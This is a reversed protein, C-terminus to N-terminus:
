CSTIAGREVRADQMARLSEIKAAMVSIQQQAESNDPEAASLAREIDFCERYAALAGAVDGQAARV